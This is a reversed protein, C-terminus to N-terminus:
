AGGGQLFFDEPYMGHTHDPLWCADDALSWFGGWPAHRESIKPLGCAMFIKPTDARVHGGGISKHSCQSPPGAVACSEAAVKDLVIGHVTDTVIAERDIVPTAEEPLAEAECTVRQVRWM